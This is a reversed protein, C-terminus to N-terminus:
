RKLLQKRQQDLLGELHDARKVAAQYQEQIQKVVEEKKLIAQKVRKHVEEMEDDKAKEVAEINAKAHDLEVQHRAKLESMEMKVHKNEEETAVLRNAFEQRIVDAVRSREENLRDLLKKLEIIEKDRQKLVVNLRQNEGELETLEAKTINYKERTLRESRELEEIEKEYKDRIRKIRNEAVRECEERAAQNDEELRQIVLEIERDRERRVQDKLEREKAMLWTEKKKMYNEEWAHKELGLQERLQTVEALHRREQEERAQEYETKMATVANKHSEELQRQLRDLETRQRMAQQALREKEEQVEAFLRRRQQQAAEEEQQMQKEYTQRALERERACAAEKESALQDRLEETMKVYRQAAREDAALLEAQEVSKLKKIEAKHKAILRQIEPELGRVTM